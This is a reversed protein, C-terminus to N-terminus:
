CLTTMAVLHRARNGEQTYEGADPGATVDDTEEDSLSLPEHAAPVKATVRRTEGHPSNRETLLHRVLVLMLRM